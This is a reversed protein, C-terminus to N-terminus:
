NKAQDTEAGLKKAAQLVDLKKQADAIVSELHEESDKGPFFDRTIDVLENFLKVIAVNPWLRVVTESVCLPLGNKGLKVSGDDNTELLSESVLAVEADAKKDSGSRLINRFRAMAGVTAEQLVYLKGDIRQRSQRPNIDIESIDL